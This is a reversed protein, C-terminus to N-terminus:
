RSSPSREIFSHIDNKRSDQEESHINWLSLLSTSNSPVSPLAPRPTEGAESVVPFYQIEPDGQLTDPTSLSPRSLIPPITDLRTALAEVSLEPTRRNIGLWRNGRSTNKGSRRKKRPPLHILFGQVYDADIERCVYFENLTEIGEAIVKIGM